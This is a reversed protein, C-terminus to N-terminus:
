LGREQDLRQLAEQARVEQAARRQAAQHDAEMDQRHEAAKVQAAIPGDSGLAPYPAHNNGQASGSPAQSHDPQAPTARHWPRDPQDVIRGDEANINYTDRLKGRHDVTYQELSRPSEAM